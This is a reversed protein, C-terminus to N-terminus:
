CQIIFCSLWDRRIIQAKIIDAPTEAVRHPLELEGVEGPVVPGATEPTRSLAGVIPTPPVACPVTVTAAAGVAAADILKVLLLGATRVTCDGTVSCAPADVAANVTVPTLAPVALTVADSLPLLLWDAETVTARTAIEASVNLAVVTTPPLWTVPVTVRLAGAGTPPAATAIVPLSGSVTGALTVTGAPADLAVNVTIVLNTPPVIGPVTVAV